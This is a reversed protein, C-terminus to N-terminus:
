RSFRFHYILIYRIYTLLYIDGKTRLIDLFFRGSSEDLEIAEIVNESPYVYVYLLSVARSKYRTEGAVIGKRSLVSFGNRIFRVNAAYM